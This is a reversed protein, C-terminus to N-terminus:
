WEIPLNWYFTADIEAFEKEFDDPLPPLLPEAALFALRVSSDLHPLGSPATRELVLYRGRRDVRLHFSVKGKESYAIWPSQRWALPQRWVRYFIQEFEKIWQGLAFDRTDFSLGSGQTRRYAGPNDFRASSGPAGVRGIERIIERLEEEGDGDTETASAPSPPATAGTEGSPEEPTEADADTGAAGPEPEPAPEPVPELPPIPQPLAAEGAEGLPAILVRSTNGESHPALSPPAEPPPPMEAAERHADSVFPADPNEETDPPSPDNVFVFRLPEPPPPGPPPDTSALAMLGSGYRQGFLLLLLHLLLAIGVAHPLRIRELLTRTPRHRSM